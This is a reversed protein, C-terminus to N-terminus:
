FVVLVSLTPHYAYSESKSGEQVCSNCIKCQSTTRRQSHLHLATAVSSSPVPASDFHWQINVPLITVMLLQVSEERHACHQLIMLHLNQPTLDTGTQTNLQGHGAAEYAPGLYIYLALNM